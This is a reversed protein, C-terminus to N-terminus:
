QSFALLPDHRWERFSFYRFTTAIASAGMVREFRAVQNGTRVAAIFMKGMTDAGVTPMVGASFDDFDLSALVPDPQLQVGQETGMGISGLRVAKM